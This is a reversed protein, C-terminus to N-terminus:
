YSVIYFVACLAYVFVTLIYEFIVFIGLGFSVLNNSQTLFM